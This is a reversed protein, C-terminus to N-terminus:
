VSRIDVMISCSGIAKPIVIRDVLGRIVLSKRETKISNSSDVDM